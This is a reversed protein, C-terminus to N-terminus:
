LSSKANAFSRTPMSVCVRTCLSDSRAAQSGRDSRPKTIVASRREYRSSPFTETWYEKLEKDQIKRVIKHRPKPTRLSITSMRFRGGRDGARRQFAMRLQHAIADGWNQSLRKIVGILEDAIHSRELGDSAALLNFPFPYDRGQLMSTSFTM